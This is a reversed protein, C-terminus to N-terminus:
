VHKRYIRLPPLKVKEQLKQVQKLFRINEDVVLIRNPSTDTIKSTQSNKQLLPSKFARRKKQSTCKDPKKECPSTSNGTTNQQPHPLIQLRSHYVQLTFLDSLIGASAYYNSVKNSRHLTSLSLPEM